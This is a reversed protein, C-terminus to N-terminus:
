GHQQMLVLARQLALKFLKNSGISLHNAHKLHDNYQDSAFLNLNAAEKWNQQGSQRRLKNSQHVSSRSIELAQTLEKEVQGDIRGSGHTTLSPMFFYRMRFNQFVPKISAFIMM